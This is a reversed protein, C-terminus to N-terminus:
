IAFVVTHIDCYRNLTNVQFDDDSNGQSTDAAAQELVHLQRRADELLQRARAFDM